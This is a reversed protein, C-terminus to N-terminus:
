LRNLPLLATFCLRLGLTASTGYCILCDPFAETHLQCPLLVQCPHLMPSDPLFVKCGSSTTLAFTRLCSHPGPMSLLLTPLAHPPLLRIGLPWLTPHCQLDHLVKTTITPGKDKVRFSIPRGQPAQLLSPVQQPKCPPTSSMTLCPQPLHFCPSRNPLTDELVRGKVECHLFLLHCHPCAEPPRCTSCPHYM